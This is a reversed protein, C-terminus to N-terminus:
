SIVGLATRLSALGRENHNQVSSKSLGLLDAVEALSWGYGHVLGVVTRQRETLGRLAAPLGPEVHPLETPEVEPFVPSRRRVHRRARNRAIGFVYAMPDSRGGVDRWKEWAIALAENTADAAVEPGFAATLAQQLRPHAVRAWAEFDLASGSRVRSSLVVM